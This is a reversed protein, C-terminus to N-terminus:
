VHVGPASVPLTATTEGVLVVTYVTNPSCAPQVALEVTCNTILGLGGNTAAAEGVATQGPKLEDNVAAPATDYVHFGPPNTLEFIVTVGLAVLM